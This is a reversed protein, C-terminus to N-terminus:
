KSSLTSWFGFICTKAGIKHLNFGETHLLIHKITKTDNIGVRFHDLVLYDKMILHELVRPLGLKARTLATQSRHNGVAERSWYKLYSRWLKIPHHSCQLKSYTIFIIYICKNVWKDCHTLTPSKFLVFIVFFSLFHGRM